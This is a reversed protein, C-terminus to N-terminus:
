SRAWSRTTPAAAPRGRRSARRSVQDVLDVTLVLDLGKSLVTWLIWVLPVMALSSRPGPRRRARHPRDRGRRRGSLRAGLAPPAPEAAVGLRHRPSRHENRSPRGASSSSGRPPTSPSPSSSCSWAPRSTPAPRRRPTSSVPTARSGPRVNGGTFISWSWHAAALARHHDAARRDDRRARPRPRADLRLHRRAPRVAPRRDPDDGVPDRGPRAGGGQARDPTQTFVERSVHRHRDAPDHDALVVGRSSRTGGTIGTPPSSRSGASCRPIGNQIASSTSCCSTPAGSATSSRRCPRSCTSPAGRVAAGAAAARVATLFLAVGVSVPVAIVMAVISSIVTSGCCIPSASSCPTASSPELGPRHPLEGLEGACRRSPRRSCSSPSRPSSSRRRAARFGPRSLGPRLSRPRGVAPTTASRGAITRRAARASTPDASRRVTVGHGALRCPVTHRHASRDPSPTSRRTSRPRSETPCRHRLRHRRLEEPHRQPWRVTLFAKLLTTKAADLGKSCVIEYTVLVIPYVGPTRPRTTWSSRSTTAPARRGDRRRDGQGGVRRDARGRRRRQRDPRRWGTTRPTPGSSTASAATAHEQRGPRRRGVEGRGARGQRGSRRRTTATWDGRARRREPVEHLEGDHGVRGLPLLRTITTSPLTAGSNLRPSRRTTGPAHDQRQLDQRHRQPTLVLKDVGTLNYAVAIPGAVM